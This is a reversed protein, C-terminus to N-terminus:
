SRSELSSAANSDAIITCNKSLRLLSSPVAMSPMDNVTKYLIKSKEQGVVVAIIEHSRLIENMSVTIGSKATTVTGFYKASVSRTVKDLQATLCTSSQKTYPENFGIHGNVGIGLVSLGIRGFGALLSSIRRCESETDSELGNFYNIRDEAIGAPIFFSDFLIQRCSGKTEYGFGVWEDLVLYFVSNLDVEGDKAMGVLESYVGPMTEGAALCILQNKNRNIYTKIKRAAEAFVDPKSDRIIIKM